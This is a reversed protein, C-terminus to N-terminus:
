DGGQGKVRVDFGALAFAEQVMKDRGDNDGKHLARNLVRSAWVSNGYPETHVRGVGEDRSDTRETAMQKEKVPTNVDTYAMKFHQPNFPERLKSEAFNLYADIRAEDVVDIDTDDDDIYANRYTCWATRWKLIDKVSLAYGEAISWEFPRVPHPSGAKPRAVHPLGSYPSDGEHSPAKTTKFSVM